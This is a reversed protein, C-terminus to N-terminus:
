KGAPLRDLARGALQSWFAVTQSGPNAVIARKFALSAGAYDKKAALLRGQAYAAEVRVTEDTLANDFVAAYAKIAEDVKGALEYNGAAEVAARSRLFADAEADQAVTELIKAAETYKKDASYLRALKIRAATAAPGKAHEKLAQEIQEIKEAGAFAARSRAETENQWNWISAGVAIVVILIGSFVMLKKSNEVVWLEFNDLEQSVGTEVPIDINKKEKSAM